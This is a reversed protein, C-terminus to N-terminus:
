SKRAAIVENSIKVTKKAGIDWNLDSEKRSAIMSQVQAIAELLLEIGKIYEL